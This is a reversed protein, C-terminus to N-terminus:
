SYDKTFEDTRSSGDDMEWTRIYKKSVVEDDKTRVRIECTLKVAGDLWGTVEYM